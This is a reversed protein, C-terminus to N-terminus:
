GKHLKYKKHLNIFYSKSLKRDLAVENRALIEKIPLFFYKVSITARGKLLDKFHKLSGPKINMGDVVVNHGAEVAKVLAFDRVERLLNDDVTNYDDHSPGYNNHVFFMLRIDDKSVRVWGKNEKVWSRSWTTKGCRSLGRTIMVKLKM